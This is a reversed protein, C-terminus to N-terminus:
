LVSKQWATKSAIERVGNYGESWEERGEEKGRMERKPETM